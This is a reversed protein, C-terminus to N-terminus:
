WEQVDEAAFIPMVKHDARPAETAQTVNRIVLGTKVGHGQSARFQRTM